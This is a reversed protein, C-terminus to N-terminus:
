AAGGADIRAAQWETWAASGPGVILGADMLVIRGNLQEIPGVEHAIFLCALSPLARLATLIQTQLEIDLGALSEDLILLAPQVTLARAIAVRARQGGSLETVRKGLLAQELGALQSAALIRERPLGQIEVPESIAEQATFRPSLSRGPDQPIWAVRRRLRPASVPEGDLQVEGEDAAELGALIRALATKGCGSRGALVVWEAYGIELDVGLLAAHQKRGFFGRSVHTKRINRAVILTSM